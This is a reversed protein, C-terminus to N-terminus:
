CSQFLCAIAAVILLDSLLAERESPDAQLHECYPELSDFGAMEHRREIRRLVTKPKYISFDVNSDVRLQELIEQSAADAAFFDDIPELGGASAGIGCIM